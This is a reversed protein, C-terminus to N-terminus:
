VDITSAHADLALLQVNVMAVRELPSSSAVLTRLERYARRLIERAHTLDADSLAFVNYAFLDDAGRQEIRDRAATTWHQLLQTVRSRDGRTDVTEDDRGEYLGDRLQVSGAKVLLDLALQEQALEIGLVHAVYGPQHAPLARYGTTELVRLVAESWPALYATSRLAMAAEHRAHLAPVERISVLAAVLDHLRGTVADVYHFFEFLRPQATGTLWRRLAFRSVGTRAALVAVSTSGRIGQMWAALAFGVDDRALPVPHFAAFAQPVSVGVREAARLAELATPCRRGHEWDTVPNARYGLRKAFARQSRPGRLARMVQQSILAYNGLNARTSVSGLM